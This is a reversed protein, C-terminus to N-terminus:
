RAVASTPQGTPRYVTRRQRQMQLPRQPFPCRAQKTFTHAQETGSSGSHERATNVKAAEVAASAENEHDCKGSGPQLTAAMALSTFRSREM